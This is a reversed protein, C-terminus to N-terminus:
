GRRVLRRLSTVWGRHGAIRPAPSDFEPQTLGFRAILASLGRLEACLSEFRRQDDEALLNLSSYHVLRPLRGALATGWRISFDYIEGAGVSERQGLRELVNIQERLFEVDGDINVPM